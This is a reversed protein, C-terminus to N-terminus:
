KIYHGGTEEALFFSWGWVGPGLGWFIHCRVVGKSRSEFYDSIIPGTLYLLGLINLVSWNFFIIQVTVVFRNVIPLQLTKLALDVSFAILLELCSWNSFVILLELCSWIFFVICFWSSFEISLEIDDISLCNFTWFQQKKNSLSCQSYTVESRVVVSVILFWNREMWKSWMQQPIPIQSVTTLNM